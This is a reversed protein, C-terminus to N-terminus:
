ADPSVNRLRFVLGCGPDWRRGPRAWHGRLWLGADYRNLYWVHPNGNRDAIQKMAILYWDGMPQSLDKIRQYPGVEAPCLELGFEAAQQYIEETTAGQPFGLDKVSLRVLGIREAQPLTTFDPSQLMDQAYSSINIQREKLTQILAERSQGGIELEQRRIKGEPFATYIHEINGLVSFIGPFLPGVYAKTDDKIEQTSHAIQDPACDFVVPMDAEPNRQGRLEEIRPDKQYGFGEIKNDIEYLFFLDDRNLDPYKEPQETHLRTKRVIDGLKRTDDEKQKFNENGPFKNIQDTTVQIFAPELNQHIDAVGHAEIVQGDVVYVGVRPVSPTEVQKGAETQDYTCYIYLDGKKLYSAATAYGAICWETGQGALLDVISAPDAGQPFHRWEGKTGEGRERKAQEVETKFARTSDALIM